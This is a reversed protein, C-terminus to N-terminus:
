FGARRHQEFICSKDPAAIVCPLRRFNRGWCIDHAQWTGYKGTARYPQNRDDGGAPGHSPLGHAAAVAPFESDIEANRRMVKPLAQSIRSHVKANALLLKLHRLTYKRVISRRYRWADVTITRRWRSMRGSDALNWIRSPKRGASFPRVASCLYRRPVEIARQRKSTGLGRRWLVRVTRVDLMGPGLPRHSPTPPSGQLWPM